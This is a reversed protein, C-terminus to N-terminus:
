LESVAKMIDAQTIIGVLQNEYVVPFRRIKKDLFQQAADLIPTQPDITTPPTTMHDGVKGSNSPSNDYRGKVIEKLCDGESLVGILRNKSDVVPAGSIRNQLLIQMADYISQDETLSVLNTVMYDSVYKVKRQDEQHEVGKFNKFM